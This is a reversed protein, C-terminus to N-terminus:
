FPQQRVSLQLSVTNCQQITAPSSSTSGLSTSSTSHEVPVLSAIFHQHLSLVRCNSSQQHLSVISCQQVIAPTSSSSASVSTCLTLSYFRWLKPFQIYRLQQLGVMYPVVKIRAYCCSIEQFLVKNYSYIYTFRYM